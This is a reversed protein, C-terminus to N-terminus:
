RRDKNLVREIADDNFRLPKMPEKLWARGKDNSAATWARRHSICAPRPRRTWAMIEGLKQQAPQVPARDRGHARVKRRGGPGQPQVAGEDTGWETWGGFIFGTATSSYAGDTMARV